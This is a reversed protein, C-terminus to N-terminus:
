KKIQKLIFCAAFIGIGVWFVTPITSTSKSGFIIDGTISGGQAGSTATTVPSPNVSIPSNAGATGLAADLFASM